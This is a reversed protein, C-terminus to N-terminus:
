SFYKKMRNVHSTIKARGRGSLRQLAYNVPSTKKLVKYPGVFNRLLKESRGVFRRPTYVLVKEGEEYEVPKHTADYRVKDKDQRSEIKERALARAEQMSQFARRPFEERMGQALAVESPLLAEVGFMLYYPSRGTTDQRSTNYAFTVAGLNEDWDLHNVGVYASVMGALTQNLRETVSNTQPHFSTCSQREVGMCALLEAILNNQFEKGQDVILYRFAGFKCIIDEYLFRAVEMSKGSPIAKTVAYRTAHEVAVVIRKNGSNSLPFPGLLDCGWRHFIDGIPIPQLLGDMNKGGGKKMQCHLCTRCFKVCDKRLSPWYFRSKVRHYTKLFSLHGSTPHAHMEELIQDQLALPIYLLYLKGTNDVNKRYVVNNRYVFNKAFRQFVATGYNEDKLASLLEAIHTDEMQLKSIDVAELVLTPVDLFEAAAEDTPASFVPNRSLADADKNDKGNKYFIEYDFDALKVQWRAL